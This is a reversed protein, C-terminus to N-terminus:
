YFEEIDFLATLIAVPYPSPLRPTLNRTRPPGLIKEEGHRGSRSQPGGLRRDLPYWPSKGWPYLPLPTFIVVWKWSTGLDLFHWYICGNGWVGEHCLAENTLSLSLKV